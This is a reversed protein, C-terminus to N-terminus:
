RHGRRLGSGPIPDRRSSEVIEQPEALKRPSTPTPRSGTAARLSTGSRSGSRRRRAPRTSLYSGRGSLSLFPICFIIALAVLCMGKPSRVGFVRSQVPSWPTEGWSAPNLSLSSGMGSELCRPNPRRTSILEVIGKNRPESLQHGPGPDGGLYSIVVQTCGQHRPNETRAGLPSRGGARLRDQRIPHEGELFRAPSRRAPAADEVGRVLHLASSKPCRQM